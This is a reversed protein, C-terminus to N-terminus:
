LLGSHRLLIILFPFKYVLNLINFKFNVVQSPHLFILQGSSIGAEGLLEQKRDVETSPGSSGNQM